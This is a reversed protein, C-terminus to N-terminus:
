DASADQRHSGQYTDFTKQQGQKQLAIVDYRDGPRGAAEMGPSGIPMGPVALGVLDPMDRLLRQISPVPVHGELVYGEVFATHCSALEAPVGESKKMTALDDSVHDIVNFGNSALVNGWKTCCSCSADRYLHVDPGSGKLTPDLAAPGGHHDGHSWASTAVILGGLCALLLSKIVM